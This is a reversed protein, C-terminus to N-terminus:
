GKKPDFDEFRRCSNFIIRNNVWRQLLRTERPAAEKNFIMVYPDYGLERLTYIRHLDEEHTSNFNTLVYVGLKRHDYKLWDKVRKFQSTLDQKPNDWAFHLMKVRLHKILEAREADMLRIDLGQTFDIFARTKSLGKLIREAAICALLNPDLLKIIKQGRYFGDIDSVQKSELGEKEGVCCFACGRPCGRTIFGYAESFQPYLSYDPCMTEIEKPLVSKIDYGTGGEIVEDALIVSEVDPTFTFVKSKYVCDYRELGFWWKVNDGKSKHYSSIKMLALNPFNHGDVDILGINM